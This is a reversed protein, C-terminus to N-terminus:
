GNQIVETGGVSDASIKRIPFCMDSKGSTPCTFDHVAGVLPINREQLYAIMEQFVGDHDCEVRLYEYGPIVWKVWGEPPEACDDCEVGALYLGKTFGDEWPLFSRSFDSMAGWIGMLNGQPDKKALHAVDCFHANADEWLRQIFGDGDLTSGEKGIVSFSEKVMTGIKLMDSKRICFVRTFTNDPDAYEELFRMGIKMATKQSPINTYKMYSYVAPFHCVDFAYQVCAAAAESAFGQRQQDARIHYGIEPLLTGHINQMTIGCDGIMDGTDKRVVAWLGFGDTEYREQNRRIWSRVREKDFSNPYHEMIASDGLVAYLSDFDESHLKRLILRPTELIM